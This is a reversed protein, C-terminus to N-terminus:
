VSSWWIPLMCWSIHAGWCMYLLLSGSRPENLSSAGLGWSVPPGLSSLPPTPPMRMFVPLHPPSIPLLVTLSRGPPSYFRPFFILYFSPVFYYYYCSCCYRSASSSSL